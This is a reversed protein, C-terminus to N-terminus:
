VFRAIREARPVTALEQLLRQNNALDREARSGEVGAYRASYVGPVGHLADVELGSDDALCPYGTMKAYATAKLRANELFTTGDEVPESPPPQPLSDLGIVRHGLPGLIARVESVKHPNSSAFLLLV